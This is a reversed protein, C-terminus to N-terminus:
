PGTPTRGLSRGVQQMLSYGFVSEWEARPIVGGPELLHKLGLEVLRDRGVAAVLEEPKQLDLEVALARLDLPRLRFDFSVVSAPERFDKLGVGAADAGPLFAKTAEWARDQFRDEDRKLLADMDKRDPYLQRVKEAAAGFVGAKERITDGFRIMGHAHCAMCSVGNVIEFSGSVRNNDGVVQIPGADIREDKGNVLLYGQLGNPLNFIAEGGDHQFAQAEHPNKLKPDHFEVPGLPFRLLRGRGADPLFDYSKWYAGFKAPHREVLRNQASVGSRIFGARALRDGLFNKYVDVGLAAELDYATMQRPNDKRHPKNPDLKKERVEKLGQDYMLTHYLPPRSATAVFWDARVIPYNHKTLTCIQQELGRLTRDPHDQYTLGYPYADVVYKWLNGRAQDWELEELNVAFVLKQDDIPEPIVLQGVWSVSNIVKSLAARHYAVEDDSLVPNNHVNALTFYRYATLKKPADLEVKRLHKLVAELTYQPPVFKRHGGAQPFPPAGLEIWKRVLEAQGGQPTGFWHREPSGVQPMREGEISQWLKSKAPDGPVVVARQTADGVKIDRTLSAQDSVDFKYPTSSGEGSHCRFCHAKLVAGAQTAIRQVEEAPPQPKKAEEKKAEEKKAGEKKEEQARVPGAAVLALAAAALTFRFRM